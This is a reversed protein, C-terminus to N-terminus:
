RFFYIDDSFRGIEPEAARNSTASRRGSDPIAVHLTAHRRYTPTASTPTNPSTNQTNPIVSSRKRQTLKGSRHTASLRAIKDRKM